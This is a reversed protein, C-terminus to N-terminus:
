RSERRTMRPRAEMKRVEVRVRAATVSCAGDDVLEGMGPFWAPRQRQAVRRIGVRPTHREASASAREAM